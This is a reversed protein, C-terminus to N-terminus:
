FKEYFNESRAKGLDEGFNIRWSSILEEVEGEMKEGMGRFDEGLSNLFSQFKGVMKAHEETFVENKATLEEFKEHKLNELNHLNQQLTTIELRKNELKKLLKEETEQIKQNRHQLNIQDNKQKATLRQQLM